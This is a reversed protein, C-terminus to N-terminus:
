RTVQGTYSLVLGAFVAAGLWNNNLFARFCLDPQRERILYQQYVTLALAILLGTYYFGGLQLRLGILLLVLLLLGQIIAIIVRDAEAFLIATSKVGIRLDDERDVMAYLTDYATAWLVTAIFVLWAMVPVAGTQAAFAMPVSWGFAMGLYVQPLYTYRKVFPYTAALFAGVFALLITLRNMMLVLIFALTCLAAFLKLAESVSVQGSAIPRQRTRRVHPDIDRDAIDNIVCGASRMLIVGTVFVVLVRSDPVGQAAIWLAWLTPWLLLFIGIPRDLRMLLFYQQGRDLLRERMVLM